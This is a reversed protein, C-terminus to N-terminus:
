QAKQCPEKLKDGAIKVALEKLAPSTDHTKRWSSKSKLRREVERRMRLEEIDQISCEPPM